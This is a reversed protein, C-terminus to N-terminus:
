QMLGYATEWESHPSTSTLDLKIRSSNTLNRRTEPMNDRSNRALMKPPRQLGMTQWAGRPVMIEVSRTEYCKHDKRSEYGAGDQDLDEEPDVYENNIAIKNLTKGKDAWEM